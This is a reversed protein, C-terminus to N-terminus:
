IDREGANMWRETRRERARALTHTHTHTLSHTHTHTHTHTHARAREGGNRAFEIAREIRNVKRVFTHVSVCVYVCVSVYPCM